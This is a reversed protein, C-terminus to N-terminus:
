TRPKGHIDGLKQPHVMVVHLVDKRLFTIPVDVVDEVAYICRKVLVNVL